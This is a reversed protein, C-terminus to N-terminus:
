PQGITRSHLKSAAWRLSSLYPVPGLIRGLWEGGGFTTELELRLRAESKDQPRVVAAQFSPPLGYRLISEVFLRVVLVHMYCSFAQPSRLHLRFCPVCPCIGPRSTAARQVDWVPITQRRDPLPTFPM